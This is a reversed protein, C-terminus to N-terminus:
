SLHTILTHTLLIPQSPPNLPHTPHNLSLRVNTLTGQTINVMQTITQPGRRGYSFLGDVSTTFRLKWVGNLSNGVNEFGGAVGASVNTGHGKWGINCVPTPNSKVLQEIMTIIHKEEITFPVDVANSTPIAVAVERYEDIISLLHTRYAEREVDSSLTQEMLTKSTSPRAFFTNSRFGSVATILSMIMCWSVLMTVM